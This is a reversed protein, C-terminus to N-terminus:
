RSRASPSPQCATVVPSCPECTRVEISPAPPRASTGVPSPSSGAPSRTSTSSSQPPPVGTAEQAPTAMLARPHADARGLGPAIRIAADHAPLGGLQRERPALEIADPARLVELAQRAGVPV